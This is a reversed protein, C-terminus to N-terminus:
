ARQEATSMAQHLRIASASDKGKQLATQYAAIAAPWSKSSAQADGELQWGIADNKRQDQVQHAIALADTPRKDALAVVILGRQAALLRPQVDLAKRLSRSAGDYDKLRLQVDAQALLARPNHPEMTALRNLSTLAQQSSGAAAQARALSFLVDAND